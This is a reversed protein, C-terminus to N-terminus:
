GGKNEPPVVPAKTKAWSLLVQADLEVQNLDDGNAEVKFGLTGKTSAAQEFVIRYKGNLTIHKVEETM